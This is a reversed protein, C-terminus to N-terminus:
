VLDESDLNYQREMGIGTKRLTRTGAATHRESKVMAQVGTVVLEACRQPPSGIREEFPEALGHALLLRNNLMLRCCCSATACAYPSLRRISLLRRKSACPRRMSARPRNSERGTGGCMTPRLPKPGRVWFYISLAVLVGALGM